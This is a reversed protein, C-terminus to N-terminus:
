RAPSTSASSLTEVFRRASAGNRPIQTAEPLFNSPLWLAVPLANGNGCDHIHLFLPSARRDMQPTTGGGFKRPLGFQARDPKPMTTKVLEQYKRGLWKQAHSHSTQISGIEWRSDQTFATFPADKPRNSPILSEFTSRWSPSDTPCQWDIGEFKVLTISGWGKRSRSGLGGVLGLLKLVTL